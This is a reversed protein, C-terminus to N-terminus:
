DADQHHWVLAREKFEISSEDTAEMDSRIVPEVMAKNDTFLFLDEWENKIIAIGGFDWLCFTTMTLKDLLSTDRIGQLM